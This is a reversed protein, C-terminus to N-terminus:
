FPVYRSACDASPLPTDGRGLYHPYLGGHADIWCKMGELMEKYSPIEPQFDKRSNVLSKDTSYTDDRKIVIERRGFVAQMLTLLEYKSISSGPVLHYLGALRSFVAAEVARALEMTTVGTWIAGAFGRIEGEAKMFWNFLGIGEPNIDPGIISTRFTLDKDNIVEGVAKTRAYFSDGDKFAAETYGGTEGSFVCDTSLHILRVATDRYKKEMFHPLFANLFVAEDKREEAFRNLIGICNIIVDFKMYDLYRGFAELERVDLLVTRSNLAKRDSLNCVFLRPNKELHLTVVHGAMGSSGLVLIRVAKDGYM